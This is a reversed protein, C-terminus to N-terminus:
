RPLARYYGGHFAALGRPSGDLALVFSGTPDVAEPLRATIDPMVNPGESCIWHVGLEHILDAFEARRDRQVYALVATHFVVVTADAPAQAVLAPLQEILDGALIRPPDDAVVAAAARLREVRETHEPWILAGLWRLEEPDRLDIPNLDIGARWAVEPIRDPPEGDLECEIVVDSVGAAPDLSQIRGDATRYRYSYRDPLLCLGAAAGVEILALPGPLTTLVPLLTACRAAENTQTSRSQIVADVRGWNALLWVRFPGYERSEPSGLFRAAAFLLQPQRKIGELGGLLALVEPDAAISRAWHEYIPSNGKADVEAFKLYIDALPTAM